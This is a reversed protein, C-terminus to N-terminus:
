GGGRARAGAVRAQREDGGADVGGLVHQMADDAVDDDRECGGRRASESAVRENKSGESTARDRERRGRRWRAAGMRGERRGRRRRRVDADRGARRALEVTSADGQDDREGDNRERLTRTTRTARTARRPTGRADNADIRRNTAEDGERRFFRLETAWRRARRGPVRTANSRATELLCEDADATQRNKAAHTRAVGRM